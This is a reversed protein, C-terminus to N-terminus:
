QAATLVTAKYFLHASHSAGDAKRNIGVKDVKNVLTLATNVRINKKNAAVIGLRAGNGVFYKCQDETITEYGFKQLTKNVFYTITTITNLITGDLDFICCKIM